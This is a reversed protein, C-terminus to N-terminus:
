QLKRSPSNSRILIFGLRKEKATNPIFQEFTTIGIILLRTVEKVEDSFATPFLSSLVDRTYVGHHSHNYISHIKIICMEMSRVYMLSSVQATPMFPSPPM